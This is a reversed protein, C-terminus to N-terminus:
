FSIETRVGAVFAHIAEPALVPNFIYQFDPQIRFWENLQFSYTLELITEYDSSYQEADRFADTLHITTFAFGFVDENRGPILGTYKIGGLVSFDSPNFSSNAIGVRGFFALGQETSPYESYIFQEGSVYIGFNGNEKIGTAKNEFDSTYYWGGISYKYYNEGYEYRSSSFILETSLLTGEDLGWQVRFGKENTISGPVGDFVATLIKLSESLNYRIRLALSTYPFISPGNEGSQAFDFGIGFSPNIFIGSSERYDFESNLNYLGFLVSLDESLFNQELWAEYLKWHNAGAINSIGQMAGTNELFTGGNIGLGSAYFSMGDIGAIKKLDFGVNMILNNIYSDDLQIGGSLTSFFDGSYSAHLNIGTASLIDQFTFTNESSSSDSQAFNLNNNVQYILITVLCIKNISKKM